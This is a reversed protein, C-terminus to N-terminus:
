GTIKAPSTDCEEESFLAYIKDHAAQADRYGLDILENIFERDFLIYSAFDNQGEEFENARLLSRRVMRAAVGHYNKLGSRRVVEFAISSLNVSPRIVVTEVKRFNSQRKLQTSLERGFNEGYRSEGAEIIANIREVQALDSELRDQMLANITKGLLFFANPFAMKAENRLRQRRQPVADHHDMSIVLLRNAGLRLAPRLPTNQRLMGDVYFHEGVRVAPFLGPIAASSLAHAANIRTEIVIENNTPQWHRPPAFPARQVFTTCVGTALETATCSYAFLHGKALNDAIKSWPIKNEITQRLFGWDVLGGAHGGPPIEPLQKAFLFHPLNRLQPWGFAYVQDITLESWVRGLMRTQARPRDITAAIYAGNIAGVSTGTIVDIRCDIPIKERIYRLVGIEYAGRAGGGSLVLGVRAQNARRSAFAESEPPRTAM